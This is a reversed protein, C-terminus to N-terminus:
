IHVRHILGDQVTFEVKARGNFGDSHVKSHLTAGDSKTDIREIEIRMNAGIFERDSWREINDIGEFKRGTDIVVADPAFLARFAARDSNNAADVWGQALETATPM